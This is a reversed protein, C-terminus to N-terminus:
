YNEKPFNTTLYPIWQNYDKITWTQTQNNTIFSTGSGILTNPCESATDCSNQDYDWVLYSKYSDTKNTDKLTTALNYYSAWASSNNWNSIAPKAYVAYIYRGVWKDIMKYPVTDKVNTDWLEPDYLDKTLYKKNFDWNSDLWITWKAWIQSWSLSSIWMVKWWGLSVGSVSLIEAKDYSVVLKNTPLAIKSSDYWFINSSWSAMPMPYYNNNSKFNQLWSEITSIDSIKRSNVAKDTAWWFSQYAVVSIIALITIVVLLEVLTFANKNIKQM